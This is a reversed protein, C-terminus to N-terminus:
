ESLTDQAFAVRYVSRDADGAAIVPLSLVTGVGLTLMLSLVLVVRQFAM